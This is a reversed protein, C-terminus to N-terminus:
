QEQCRHGRKRDLKPHLGNQNASHHCQDDSEPTRVFIKAVPQIQCNQQEHNQNRMMEAMNVGHPIVLPTRVMTLKCDM